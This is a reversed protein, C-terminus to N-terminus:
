KLLKLNPIKKLSSAALFCASIVPAKPSFKSFKKEEGAYSGYENYGNLEYDKSDYRGGLILKAKSFPTMEYQIFPSTTIDTVDVDSTEVTLAMSSYNASTVDTHQLEIGAIIPSDKFGLKRNYMAVLDNSDADEKKGTDGYSPAGAYEKSRMAFNIELGADDGIEREYKLSNTFANSDAYKDYIAAKSWDADFQAESIKDPDYRLMEYYETRFTLKSSDNAKHILKLSAAKRDHMTRDQFGDFKMSNVDVFYGLGGKTTGAANVGARKKEYSGAEAWVRYEPMKPADRTIVNIVGGLANSGYLASAPGRLVEIREIDFTNSQEAFGNTGSGAQQVAMGDLLNVTYNKGGIPIRLNRVMSVGPIRDMLEAADTFKVKDIEERDIISISSPTESIKTEVRAATVSIDEFEIVNEAMVPQAAVASVLMAAPIFGALKKMYRHQKEKKKKM